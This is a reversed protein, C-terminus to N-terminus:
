SNPFETVPGGRVDSWPAWLTLFGDRTIQYHSALIKYDRLALGSPADGKQKTLLYTVAYTVNDQTVQEVYAKRWYDGPYITLNSAPNIANTADGLGSYVAVHGSRLPLYVEATEDPVDPRLNCIAEVESWSIKLVPLDTGRTFKWVSCKWSEDRQAQGTITPDGKQNTAIFSAYTGAVVEQEVWANEYTDGPYIVPTSDLALATVDDITDVEGSRLIVFLTEPM